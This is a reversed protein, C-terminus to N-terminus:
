LLLFSTEKNLSRDFTVTHECGARSNHRGILYDAFDGPGALYDTLAAHLLERDEFSFMATNMIKELAATIAPKGLRYAARLVWVVECLVVDDIHLRDGDELAAAVVADVKRAQAPDDQTLYRILVNTDIGILAEERAPSPHGRENCRRKGRATGATEALGPAERIDLSVGRVIVDGRDTLVFDVQDGADIRLHERVSKPITVQGKTTLTATPM